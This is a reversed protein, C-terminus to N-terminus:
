SAEGGKERKSELLTRVVGLLGCAIILLMVNVNLFYNLVFVVAMLFIGLWDRSKVGGSGMDYVVSAIVAGVGAQMGALALAVIENSAFAEYFLSIVSLIVFPPLVTALVSVLLGAIGALKFGVVIAGNVAIAGPASQAIAVLDLMEEEDIWHYEDVFKKKMLTVIVYGGGFTFASLTLTSLFLQLLLHKAPRTTEGKDASLPVTQSTDKEKKDSM